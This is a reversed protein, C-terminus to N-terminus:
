IGIAYAVGLDAIWLLLDGFGFGWGCRRVCYCSGWVICLVLGCGSVAALRRLCRCWVVLILSLLWVM